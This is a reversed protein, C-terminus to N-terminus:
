LPPTKQEQADIPADILLNHKLEVSGKEAKRWFRGGEPRTKDGLRM